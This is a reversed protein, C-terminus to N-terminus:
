YGTDTAEFSHQMRAECCIQGGTDRHVCLLGWLDLVGKMPILIRQMKTLPWSHRKAKEM